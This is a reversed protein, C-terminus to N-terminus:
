RKDIKLDALVAFPSISGNEANDISVNGYGDMDVACADAPHMPVQPIALLLEAEVLAILNVLADEVLEPDLDDPLGEAEELSHVFGVSVNSDVPLSLSDLCRQCQLLLTTRVFGKM